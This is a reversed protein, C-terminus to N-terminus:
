PGIKKYRGFRAQAQKVTPMAQRAVEAGARLMPQLLKSTVYMQIIQKGHSKSVAAKLAPLSESDYAVAKLKKGAEATLPEEKVWAEAEAELLKVLAELGDKRVAAARADSAILLTALFLASVSVVPHKSM